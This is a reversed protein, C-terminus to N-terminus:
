KTAEGAKKHGKKHGKKHEKKMPASGDAPASMAPHETPVPAAVPENAQAVFAFALAAALTLLKM